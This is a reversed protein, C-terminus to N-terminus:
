TQQSTCYMSYNPWISEIYQVDFKRGIYNETISTYSGILSYQSKVCIFNKAAGPSSDRVKQRTDKQRPMVMRAPIQIDGM